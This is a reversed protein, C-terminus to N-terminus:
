NGMFKRGMAESTFHYTHILLKHSPSPLRFDADCLNTPLCTIFFYHLMLGQNVLRPFAQWSPQFASALILLDMYAALAAIYVYPSILSTLLLTNLCYWSKRGRGGSTPIIIGRGSDLLFM